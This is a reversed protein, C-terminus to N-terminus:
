KCTHKYTYVTERGDGDKKTMNIINGNNDKTYSYTGRYYSYSETIKSILNKSQKGFYKALIGDEVRVDTRLALAFIDVFNSPRTESSYELNTTNYIGWEDSREIKSLNGNSWSYKIITKGYSEEILYGESNYKFSREGQSKIIGQADLLYTRMDNHSGASSNQTITSTTYIYSSTINENGYTVATLNGKDDFTFKVNGNNGIIVESLACNKPTGNKVDNDNSSKKCSAFVSIAILFILTRNM